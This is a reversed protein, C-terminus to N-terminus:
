MPRMRSLLNDKDWFQHKLAAVIHLIVLIQAAKGLIEHLFSTWEGYNPMFGVSFLKFFVVKDVDIHESGYHGLAVLGTIPIVVMLGYLVWHTVHSAMAQWGVTTAPLAPVPHGMRWLIRAIALFLVMLGWSAHTTPGIGDLSAGRPVKIFDESLFLMFLMVAAAIWHLWIATKTYKGTTM